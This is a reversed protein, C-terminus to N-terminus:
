NQDMADLRAFESATVERYFLLAYREDSGSMRVSSALEALWEMPHKNDPLQIARNYVLPRTSSTPRERSITLFWYM